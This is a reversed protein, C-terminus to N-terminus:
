RTKTKDFLFSASLAMGRFPYQIVCLQRGFEGVAGFGDYDVSWIIGQAFDKRLLFEFKNSLQADFKVGQADHVFHVLPEHVFRVAV